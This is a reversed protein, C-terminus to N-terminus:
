GFSYLSQEIISYNSRELLSMVALQYEIICSIILIVVTSIAIYSAGMLSFLLPIYLVHDSVITFKDICFSPIDATCPM